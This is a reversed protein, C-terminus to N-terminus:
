KNKNGERIKRAKEILKRQEENARWAAEEFLGIVDSNPDNFFDTFPKPIRVFKNSPLPDIGCNVCEAEIQYTEENKM